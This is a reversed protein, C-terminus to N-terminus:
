TISETRILAIVKNVKMTAAKVKKRDNYRLNPPIKEPNQRIENLVKRLLDKEEEDYKEIEARGVVIEDDEPFVGNGEREELLQVEQQEGNQAMSSEGTCEQDIDVQIEMVHQQDIGNGQASQEEERSGENDTSDGTEEEHFIDRCRRNIEEIETDTLWKNVGIQRAQDALRQENVPFVGIEDWIKKMRQRYKRKSPESKIWCEIVIKNVEKEWKMRQNTRGKAQHRGAPAPDPVGHRGPAVSEGQLTGTENVGNDETIYNLIESLKLNHKITEM